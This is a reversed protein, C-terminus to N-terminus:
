GKKAKVWEPCPSSAKIGSYRDVWIEKVGMVSHGSPDTGVKAPYRRSGPEFTKKMLSVNSDERGGLKLKRGTELYSHIFQKSMDVMVRAQARKFEFKDVLASSEAQNIKTTGSIIDSVMGRFEQGPYYTEVSGNKNYVEVGYDRDNMLAQMVTVEDRISASCQKVNGRIEEITSAVTQTNM